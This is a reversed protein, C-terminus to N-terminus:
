PAQQRRRRVYGHGHEMSVAAVVALAIAVVMNLKMPLAYTVMAVGGALLAAIVRLQSSALSLAVGLLALIGAFGLGWQAPIWAALAIGLLSGIMWASCNTTVSALWYAEHAQATLADTAPQAYRKIFLVYSIDGLAFCYLLRWWRPAHALYPQLHASFVVFRLNVCLATLWVVWLPAGALILPTAALQASGAFVVLTMFVAEVASLGTNHLVMGTTLGWTAVGISTAAIDRVGLDFAPDAVLQSWRTM